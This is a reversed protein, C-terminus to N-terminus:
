LLGAQVLAARIAEREERSVPLLPERVRADKFIGLMVLGEKIRARYDRIPPAFLVRMLPELKEYIAAAHRYNGTRVAEFMEVQLRTAISGAGILAGDAGLIFSEYIFNDNGTLVACDRRCQRIADMTHRFKYADFTAEKVAKVFPLSVIGLLAEREFEVGGLADQLVFAVLPLGCARHIAEYYRRPLEPDLPHGRMHVNPFVMLYDAGDEAAQEALRQAQATFSAVLGSVLPVRGKAVERAARMVARREEPWLSMGEGSDANIALGGVGAQVLHEVFGQYTELDPSGNEGFPLVAAAIIGQLTM